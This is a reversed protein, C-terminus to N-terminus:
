DGVKKLVAQLDEWVKKRNDTTYSRLLYAPHFTPMLDIPPDTYAFKSWSGRLKSINTTTQLAFKTAIGGLAVIATPAVIAVQQALYPGSTAAENANPPRDGPPRYKVLNALYVTDRSLGMATIMKNLLDGSPGVFPLGQQDEIEGPGESIFMIKADPSGDAWVLKTGAPRTEQVAPDNELQECLADLQKNKEDTTLGQQIPYRQAFIPTAPPPSTVRPPAPFRPPAPRATAIAADSRSAPAQRPPAATPRAPAQRAAGRKALTVGEALPVAEVGLLRDTQLHQRLIRAPDPAPM